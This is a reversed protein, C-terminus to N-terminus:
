AKGAKGVPGQGQRSRRNLRALGSRGVACGAARGRFVPGERSARRALLEAAGRDGVEVADAVDGRRTLRSTSAPLWTATTTEAMAPSSWGAPRRSRRAPDGRQVVRAFVVRHDRGALLHGGAQQRDRQLVSPTLRGSRAPSASGSGCRRRARCPACRPSRGPRSRLAAEVVPWTATTAPKWPTPGSPRMVVSPRPPESVEATASAAASFASRQSM